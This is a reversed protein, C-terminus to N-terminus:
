FLYTGNLKNNVTVTDKVIISQIDFGHDGSTNIGDHGHYRATHTKDGDCDLERITADGTLVARAIEFEAETQAAHTARNTNSNRQTERRRAPEAMECTVRTKQEHSPRTTALMNGSLRVLYTHQVGKRFSTRESELAEVPASDVRFPGRHWYRELQATPPHTAHIKTDPRSFM